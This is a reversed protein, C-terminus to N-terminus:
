VLAYWMVVSERHLVFSCVSCM